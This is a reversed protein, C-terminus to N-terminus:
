TTTALTPSSVVPARRAAAVVFRQSRDKVPFKALKDPPCGFDEDAAVGSLLYPM